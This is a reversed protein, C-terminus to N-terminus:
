RPMAVEAMRTKAFAIVEAPPGVREVRGDILLAVRDAIALPALRHTVIVVTRGRAARQLNRLLFDEAVPDLDSTSEDLILIRPNRVLARAICLLQRQGNSLGIGREGLVTEYGKSLRQIFDHAGVFKAVAVVRDPDRSLAGMQINERVTGAFLQNDQPVVGIQQRLAQLSMHQVDTGDITVRGGSPRYLGQMLKALTSKGSGSPGIIGVVSGRDISLDIQRLTPAQGPEFSFDVAEFQIRGRLEPTPSATGPPSEAPEEMVENIRRFAEKTEQVQHWATAIVRLPVLVRSALMNCAILAGVTMEGKIALVAGVSLIALSAAMQLLHGLTAAINSLNGARYSTYATSALRGEWRREMEPELALSKVTLANNISENLASAKAAQAEFIQKILKLQRWHLLAAVGIMLPAVGLTLFAMTPHIFFLVALFLVTFAVDVIQVPLQSTFFARVTDLQRIREGMTGTSAREFRAYPLSLFHHMVESGILADLRAGTHAAVYGRIVRLVAEFSLVVVMGVVLVALTDLAQQGVVKNFVTMTFLPLALALINIVLSALLLERLVSRVRRSALAQWSRGGAVAAQPKVLIAEAVVAAATQYPLEIVEGTGGDFLALGGDRHGLALRAPAGRRGLLLYPAPMDALTRSTVRAVRRVQYNLRQAARCFQDVTMGGPDLPVAARVEGETVPKGFEYSLRVLCRLLSDLAPAEVPVERRALARKGGAGGRGAPGAPSSPGISSDNVAVDDGLLCGGCAAGWEVAGIRGRHELM